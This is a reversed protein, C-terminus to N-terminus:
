NLLTFPTCMAQDESRFKVFYLGAAPLQRNAFRYTHMGPQQKGLNLDARTKGQMDIILLRVNQAKPLHYSLVNKNFTFRPSVAYDFAPIKGKRLLEVPSLGMFAKRKEAVAADGGSFAAKVADIVSTKPQQQTDWLLCGCGSGRWSNADSIGWVVFSTTNYNEVAAQVLNSWSSPSNTGNQIDIETLSVRLGLDGLRKINQSIQDKTVPSSFHCQLGVGHVPIGREKLGKVYNYMYNAKTGMNEAGYENIYLYASPDAAHAYVFASDIFDDGIKNRWYTSKLSNGGDAIMENVVDWELIKGKWHTALNTIHNKMAALMEQRSLNQVWSPTQPTWVFTHGRVKMNNSDAFKVVGDGTNYTFKNQTGETNDWKMGNECVLMSFDNKLISTFSTPRDTAAGFYMYVKAAADKIGEGDAIMFSIIVLSSAIRVLGILNGCRKFTKM